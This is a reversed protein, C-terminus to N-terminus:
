LKAGKGNDKNTELLEISELIREICGNLIKILKVPPTSHKNIKDQVIKLGRLVSRLDSLAFVKRYKSAYLNVWEKIAEQGLDKGVKESEIWKFRNIERVQKDLYRKLRQTKM